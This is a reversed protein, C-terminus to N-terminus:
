ESPVTDVHARRWRCSSMHSEYFELDDVSFLTWSVGEGGGVGEGRRASPPQVTSTLSRQSDTREIMQTSLTHHHCDRHESTGAPVGANGFEIGDETPVACSASPASPAKPRPCPRDFPGSFGDAPVVTLSRTNACGCVHHEYLKLQLPVTQPERPVPVTRRYRKGCLSAAFHASSVDAM